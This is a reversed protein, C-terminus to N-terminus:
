EIPYFCKVKHLNEYEIVPPKLLRCNEKAFPCRDLFVCSNPANFFRKPYGPIPEKKETNKFSILTNKLAKSYPHKPSDLIEKTRGEELIEGGYMVIMRDSIYRAVGLDHTILIISLKEENKIKKLLDLIQLQISVDLGTTPEDAILIKPHFILALAIMLRQKTGGSLEHPYNWLREKTLGVKNLYESIIEIGEKEKINKHSKLVELFIDVIKELPDFINQSNQFIISIDKWRIYNLEKNSIKLINFNNYFIEGNEYKANNPLIKLISYALTSKGSGSEGIIGLIENENLELNVNNLAWVKGWPTDYTVTLNSIKLLM